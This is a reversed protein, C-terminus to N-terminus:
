SVNPAMSVSTAANTSSRSPLPIPTSTMQDIRGDFRCRAPSTTRRYVRAIRRADGTFPTGLGTTGPPRCENGIEEVFVFSELPAVPRTIGRSFPCPDSNAFRVSGTWRGAQVLWYHIDGGRPNRHYADATRDIASAMGLIRNPRPITDPIQEGVRCGRRM